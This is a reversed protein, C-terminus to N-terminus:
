REDDARRLALTLVPGPGASASLRGSEAHALSRALALGIGHGPNRETRRAFAAEPDAGLGPGEDAVDVAVWGDLERVGLRIPGAGHRHANDVLVDLIEAVAGPAARARRRVADRQVLLPRGQAALPGHWRAEVEDLVADLDVTATPPAVDRAMALLTDVTAQLRDVQALAATLEPRREGGLEMAELEIRLAQLPTRLQHSADATFARERGVLDDLRAATADLAAGVADVEPVRARPARVSFDGEGLRRAAGALRELPAALRRGLILAAMAAALVIGLAVAGLVLWARHTDRAAGATSRQARVAGTVREGALLPVAAVLQGHRASEAPRGSRLASRVLAPARPPGAGAVRRGALDYVALVDRSPPLEVADPGAGVDVQRTAAVTDRALRVLEEDRYSRQLVLALPVALLVVSAAAVAAIALVLRRRV